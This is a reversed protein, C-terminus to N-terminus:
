ACKYQYAKMEKEWRLAAMACLHLLSKLKGNAFPSVGPKYRVSTGSSKSFPVVGCSCALQKTNEFMRFGKTYVYLSMATQLSVGKISSILRISKGNTEESAIFNNIAAEIKAKAKQLGAM